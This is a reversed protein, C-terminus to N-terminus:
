ARARASASATSAPAGHRRRSGEAAGGLGREGLACGEPSLAKLISSARRMTTRASVSAAAPVGSRMGARGAEGKAEAAPAGRMGSMLRM